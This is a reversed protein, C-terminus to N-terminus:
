PDGAPLLLTLYDLVQNLAAVADNHTASGAAHRAGWRPPTSSGRQTCDSHSVHRNRHVAYIRQALLM